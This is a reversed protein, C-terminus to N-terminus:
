SISCTLLVCCCENNTCLQFRLTITCEINLTICIQLHPSKVHMKPQALGFQSEKKAEDYIISLQHTMLVFLYVAAVCLDISENHEM